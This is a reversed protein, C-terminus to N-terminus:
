SRTTAGATTPARTARPSSRAASTPSRSRPSATPWHRHADMADQFAKLASRSTASCADAPHWGPRRAHRLGVPARLVGPAADEDARARRDAARDDEAPARHETDLGAFFPTVVSATNQLIPYVVSSAALGEEAYLQAVVDYINARDQPSCKACRRMACRTSSTSTTAAASSRSIRTAGSRDAAGLHPRVRLHAIGNTSILPPFLTGPNAADLRDAIRGGWGIREYGTHVASQMALEQDTHSFLNAPRPAGGTELGPKRRPSRSCASTPSSRWSRRTSCPRAAARVGSPLRVAPRRAGAPDAAAAGAPHQHGLGAHPDRRLEPLRRHRLPDAHERRRQRRAPLRLGAGQLGARGAGARRQARRRRAPRQRGRVQAAAPAAAVDLDLTRSRMM